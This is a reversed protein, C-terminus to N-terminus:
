NRKEWMKSALKSIIKESLYSYWNFYSTTKSIWDLIMGNINHKTTGFTISTNGLAKLLSTVFDEATEVMGGPPLRANNTSVYNPNIILFDLDKDCLNELRLAEM